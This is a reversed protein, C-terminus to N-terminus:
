FFLAYYGFCPFYVWISSLKDTSMQIIIFFVVFLDTNNSNFTNSDKNLFQYIVHFCWLM